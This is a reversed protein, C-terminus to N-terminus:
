ASNVASKFELVTELVKANEINAASGALLKEIEEIRAGKVLLESVVQELLKQQEARLNGALKKSVKKEQM